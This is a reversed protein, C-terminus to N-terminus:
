FNYPRLAPEFGARPEMLSERKGFLSGKSLSFRNNQYEILQELSKELTKFLNVKLKRAETLLEPRITVGVTKRKNSEFSLAWNMVSKIIKSDM